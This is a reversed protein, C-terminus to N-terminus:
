LRHKFTCLKYIIFSAKDVRETYFIKRQFKSARADSQLGGSHFSFGIRVLGFLRERIAEGSGTPVEDGAMTSDVGGGAGPGYRNVTHTEPVIM